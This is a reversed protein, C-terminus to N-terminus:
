KRQVHVAKGLEGAVFSGIMNAIDPLTLIDAKTVQAPKLKQDRRARL